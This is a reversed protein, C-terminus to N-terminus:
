NWEQDEKILIITNDKDRRPDRTRLGQKRLEKRALNRIEALTDGGKLTECKLTYSDADKEDLYVIGRVATKPKGRVERLSGPDVPYIAVRFGVSILQQLSRRIRMEINM